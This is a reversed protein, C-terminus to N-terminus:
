FFHDITIFNPARESSEGRVLRWIFLNDLRRAIGSTASQVAAAVILFAFYARPMSLINKLIAEICLYRLLSFGYSAIYAKSYSLTSLWHQYSQLGFIPTKKGDRLQKIQLQLLSYAVTFPM